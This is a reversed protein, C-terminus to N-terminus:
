SSELAGKAVSIQNKTQRYIEANSLAKPSSNYQNLTVTKVVSSVQGATTDGSSAFSDSITKAKSYSADVVTQSPLISGIQGATKKVSSLDLVPTITPQFNLDSTILDSFGNMSDRLAQMATQGTSAAAKGVSGSMEDLSNILGQASDNGIGMFVRSPSKIGLKKKIAKVMSDAIKDMIQEIKKQQNQLGKVLGAASDVAAQYLNASATKGLAAGAADLQKALSNIETVSTKGNKLLDQVFPLASVGQGLLDQYTEDNLGMKRLRQLANSYVKTDEVQKKLDAIYTSTTTEATPSATDSYQDRISKNYDDRTKKANALTDQAAKIKATYKDYQDSLKGLHNREDVYGKTLTSYAAAARAREKSSAKSSKSLDLLMKKLDNFADYIQSKNGDLGQRFGEIVFQGIKKFEKSPSHIGLVGKAASLASHAVSKAASSIAGIGGAIGSVMGEVIASALNKGAANMAGQNKRLADAIGNVLSIVMKIGADVIRPIEKGLGRLFAIIVNAAATVVKGINNAVGQLVGAVLKLGTSVMNPVYKLMTQLMMLMLRGLTTVIKPALQNIANILSNLVTTIAKTIAPGATSIVKAFAVIGLGIQEMLKPILGILGSVIGVVAATGAAGAAALATLGTAFLFMGGGAALLGIGLLAVAAGLGIMVPIVPALLLAAAGFVAFVGALMLLSKGIEAMSMQSFQQLVPALIALAGAIIITAAAGPLAGTMLYMAGAIIGMTGALLVMAKGIEEWSYEAFGALVKAIQTLSLAVILVGAAALPATPPIVYLAATIIALAGLMTTLSSAINAWSLKAMDQLADGIMGLSLAVGLVGAAALPANPPILMLAATIVALAGALSVLGKAVENWSMKSMEVVASALIKIGAALLVIGAGQGIGAKDVKSFMTFLVLSGLLVGVGVLGKAIENWSLGSLDTVASALIKIAAALAILGLGTSIMGAPTPMFKLAGVLLAMTVSLGTLGKALGNWDLGSLQKVAQVLILVASALLILSGMVFPMKAFGAAGIFKQFVSLTGMLQGFLVTLAAGAKTLDEPDIKALVSLSVSLVGIALAIQLLTAAKLTNQMTTFSGTLNGIGESIADFIGGAGGGFTGLFKKVIVFLGALLGTDLGAFLTKADFGEFMTSLNIGISQLGKSIKGGLTSFFAGVNEMVTLTKQWAFSVVEGLKGLPALAASAGAVSKEFGKSDSDKFLTALFGALKQVLKIPIALVTGLGKFFSTIGNGERIGNRLAVLFDGINATFELFGGSGKTAVGVLDFITGVVGKIIDGAIGFVAFVGAFTRKLKDATQGGIKLKETFDRFNKTMDALQKGTTAPFIERFADKIPKLVSGLAKFANGLGEILADRGGFKKWESIMKNRADSSDGVIKSISKSVGTFLGKAETFDGFILEWTQTWGSGIAEKTTDMLQSFTKVQTAAEKATKAQAQIAKIQSKNFGQAALDADSLDGTFQALTQTLVKSTLWSEQGPKATISERFSKGEITVNKMKGKLDVAGKSLTGLKEANQALARQFVTGGMGANVVSNWDELSVRGASIAQSLQYMAGSAQESNSGSLAALNAIGKIAATSEKLGVGAATFTGINKAMESFNYITQDAYHNLEDLAGNVDKLNTGAAQTNALITQISNLNTEYERFGQAIPAFSFSNLLQLGAQSARAGINELAGTALRGLVSFKSAVTSVANEIRQLSSASKDAAGSTQSLGSTFQGLSNRGSDVKSGFSTVHSVLTSFGTSFKSLFGESSQIKQAFSTTTSASQSVTQTFRGLSDRSRGIHQDFQQAVTTVGQLGKTAGQLQLGKNLRALTNLTQQVGREFAANEFKMQVVREDISNMCLDGGEM